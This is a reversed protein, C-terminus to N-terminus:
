HHNILIAYRLNNTWVSQHNQNGSWRMSDHGELKSDLDYIERIMFTILFLWCIHHFPILFYCLEISTKVFSLIFSKSINYHNSYTIITLSVRWDLLQQSQFNQLMAHSTEVRWHLLLFCFNCPNSKNAHFNSSRREAYQFTHIPSSQLLSIVFSICWKLVKTFLRVQVHVWIGEDGDNEIFSLSFSISDYVLLSLTCFFPVTTKVSQKKSQCRGWIQGRGSISCTRNDSM